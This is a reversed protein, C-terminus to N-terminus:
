ISRPPPPPLALPPVWQTEPMWRAITLAAPASCPNLMKPQAPLLIASFRLLHELTAFHTPLDALLARKRLRGEYLGLRTGNGRFSLFSLPMRRRTWRRMPCRTIREPMQSAIIRAISASPPLSPPQMVFSAIARTRGGTSRGGAGTRTRTGGVM